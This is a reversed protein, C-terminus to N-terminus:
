FKSVVEIPIKLEKAIEYSKKGMATLTAVADKINKLQSSFYDDIRWDTVESLSGYGDKSLNFLTEGAIEIKGQAPMGESFLLSFHEHNRFYYLWSKFLLWVGILDIAKTQKFLAAHQQAEFSNYHNRNPRYLVGAMDALLSVDGTQEFLSFFGSADFYEGACLDTKLIGYKDVEFVPGVFVSKGVKISPLPNIGLSFNIDARCHLLGKVNALEAQYEPEYIEHPFHTKLRKQLGESLIDFVEEEDYVPKLIFTILESLIVLNSNIQAKKEESQKFLYRKPKYGTLTKLVLLRFDTLDIEDHCYRWIHAAIESFEGATLENWANAIEIKNNNLTLM